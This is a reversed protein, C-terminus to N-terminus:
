RGVQGDAGARDHRLYRTGVQSLTSVTVKAFRQGAVEVAADVERGQYVARVKTSGYGRAIFRGPTEADPSLITADM